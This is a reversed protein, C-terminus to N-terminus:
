LKPVKGQKATGTVLASYFRLIKVCHPHNVSAMVQLCISLLSVDSTSRMPQATTCLSNLAAVQCEKWTQVLQHRQQLSVDVAQM